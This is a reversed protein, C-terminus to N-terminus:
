NTPALAVNEIGVAVEALGDQRNIEGVTMATVRGPLEIVQMPGFRGRGDGAMRYLQNSGRAAMLVDLHADADFDGVGIFDPRQPVAFVEAPSLFPADTFEGRAIRQEAEGTNPYISDVNGRHLVILSGNSSDYASVLDPVGDEDFDGAALELPHAQSVLKALDSEVFQLKDSVGTYATMLDHGDQLNIWPKGRGAGHLTIQKSIRAREAAARGAEVKHKLRAGAGASRARNLALSQILIVTVGLLLTLSVVRLRKMEIESM